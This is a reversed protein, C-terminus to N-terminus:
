TNRNGTVHRLFDGDPSKKLPMVHSVNGIRDIFNNVNRIGHNSLVNIYAIM